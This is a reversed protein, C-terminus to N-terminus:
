RVWKTLAEAVLDEDGENKDTQPLDAPLVAVPNGDPDMLFPTQSHGILYSDPTDGEMINYPVAFSKATAAIQEESGTLGILRSHFSSVFQGLIDPTDRKPDLTIFIPQIKKGLGPQQREYLKLGAMLNNMDPSCIDPCFTYGFYVIRWKGTFESRTRRKGDQDTLTYDGGISAGWLPANALPPQPPESNCASLLLCASISVSMKNMAAGSM